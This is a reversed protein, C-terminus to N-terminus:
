ASVPEIKEESRRYTHTLAATEGELSSSPANTGGVHVQGDGNNCQRFRGDVSDICVINSQCSFPLLEQLLSDIRAM